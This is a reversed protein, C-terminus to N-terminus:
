SLWYEDEESLEYSDRYEGGCCGATWVVLGTLEEWEIPTTFTVRPTLTKAKPTHVTGEGFDIVIERLCNSCETFVKYAAM